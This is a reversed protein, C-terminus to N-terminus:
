TARGAPAHVPPTARAFLADVNRLTAALDFCAALRDPSLVSRVAPDAELLARFSGAGDLAALAHGQVLRYALDRALGAATLDLLVRQSFVLGGGTDLNRRM